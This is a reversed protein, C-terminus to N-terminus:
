TKAGSYVIDHIPPMVGASRVLQANRVKSTDFTRIVFDATHEVSRLTVGIGGYLKEEDKKDPWYQECKRQLLYPAQSDWDGQPLGGPSLNRVKGNEVLNTVMIIRYSDIEWLLRWM